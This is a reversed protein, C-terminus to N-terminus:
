CSRPVGELFLDYGKRNLHVGDPLYYRPSVQRSLTSGVVTVRPISDLTDLAQNLATMGEHYDSRAPALKAKLIYIEAQPFRQSLRDALTDFRDMIQPVSNGYVLDNEGAYVVVLSLSDPLPSYDLYRSLHGLTGSGFGRRALTQCETFYDRPLSLISSSGMAVADIRNHGTLDHVWYRFFDSWAYAGGLVLILTLTFLLLIKLILKRSAALM